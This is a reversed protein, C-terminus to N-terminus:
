RPRGLKRAAVQAATSRPDDKQLQQYILTAQQPDTKEYIEALELQATGKSITATPHDALEKYISSQM